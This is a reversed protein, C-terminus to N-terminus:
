KVNVTVNVAHGVKSNVFPAPKYGGSVFMYKGTSPARFKLVLTGPKKDLIKKFSPNVSKPAGDGDYGHTIYQMVIDGLPEGTDDDSAGWKAMTQNQTLAVDPIYEDDATDNAGRFYVSAGPHMGKEQAVMTITVLQGKNAYFDGWDSSHVWGLDGFKPDSWGSARVNFVDSTKSATFHTVQSPKTTAYSTSVLMVSAVAASLLYNVAKM